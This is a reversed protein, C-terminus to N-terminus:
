DLFAGGMQSHSIQAYPECREMLQEHRGAGIIRGEELVLILDCDKISSVRQTVTIVTCGEVRQPLAQRLAADTRYDLASSSDDLVLIDPRAAVARAILLRQKQGGSLNSGKQALMYDYGEPLATIFDHAQATVAAYEVQERTLDRGFRINEEVTDAYLFDHQLAVGFMSYLEEKPITRVDRGGIRVCGSSVDYFRMLLKSLTSKGSGTAGIIGLWGGRPLSFTINRLTPTRKTPYTFTVDEFRIYDETDLDPLERTSKVALDTPTNLVEEIREASAACKTYMTFIRNISMLAMSIQTFYQMFAIVTEPDSRGGQVRYAALVVVAIIGGNMLINLVPHVLSMIRRARLEDHVLKRNVGDYRRHEYDQKSLAKIVRIGTADERVVRIMGDVSRQVQTFLPVGWRSICFILGFIVPLMVLMVTALYPDMLLSIGVGGVLLIPARVGLRQMMGVFQTVNYTDSTIRSELSPISFRDTQAASLHLTRRFLDRRMTRCSDRAVAAAMRNAVVNMTVALIACIVMAGGWLLIANLDERAVVEKLVHSLIFPLLLEAITGGIKVMLGLLMRRGFPRLYQVLLTM